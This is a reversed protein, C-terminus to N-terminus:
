RAYVVDPRFAGIAKLDGPPVSTEAASLLEPDLVGLSFSAMLRQKAAPFDASPITVELRQIFHVMMACSQRLSIAEKLPLAKRM